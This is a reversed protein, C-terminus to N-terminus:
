CFTSLMVVTSICAELLDQALSVSKSSTLSFELRRAEAFVLEHSVLIYISTLDNLHTPVMKLISLNASVALLESPINVSTNFNSLRMEELECM